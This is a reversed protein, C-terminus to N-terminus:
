RFQREYSFRLAPLGRRVELALLSPTVQHSALVDLEDRM